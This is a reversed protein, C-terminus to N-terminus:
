KEAYKILKAHVVLKENDNYCTSLTLVRDSASVTTNFNISSRGAIMNLWDTYTSDSVFKVKIYDNTTPIRYISFIQWLSNYSETSVKIVHNNTNEYWSKKLTSHLSGFMTGDMRGHAYIINNKDSLSGNNRYDLFVWGADNYTNKFSRTLYYKNDSSQVFPYNVNTGPVQLWGVTDKNAKKLEAFDVDILNMKIYMWYPDNPDIGDGTTEGNPDENIDTSGQLETIEENTSESDIKWKIVEIASYLTICFVIICLPLIVLHFNKQQTLPKKTNKRTRKTKKNKAM